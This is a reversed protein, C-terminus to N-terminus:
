VPKKYEIISSKRGRLRTVHFYALGIMEPLKGIMLLAGSATAVKLGLGRQRKRFFLQVMKLFWVLALVFLALWWFPTHLVALAAFCVATAPVAGGWFVISKCSRIWDPWRADPHLHALEAYAHGSRRARKWFQSFQSMDADHTVMEADICLLKWGKKRLRMSLDPEEGAIMNENFGAVSKLAAVRFMCNGGCGAAEGVPVNWEDDCLANYITREPYRERCRGFALALNPSRRLTAVATELWGERLESDGDIMQVFEIEPHAVILSRFGANRARAATFGTGHELELVQAGLSSALEVSGDTSGSDVYITVASHDQVSRLCRLLRSGENRGIIVVALNLPKRPKTSHAM